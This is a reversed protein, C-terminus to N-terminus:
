GGVAGFDRWEELYGRDGLGVCESNKMQFAVEQCGGNKAGVVGLVFAVRFSFDCICPEAGERM